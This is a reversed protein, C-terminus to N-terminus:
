KLVSLKIDIYEFGELKQLTYTFDVGETYGELEIKLWEKPTKFSFPEVIVIPTDSFHIRYKFEEGKYSIKSLSMILSPTERCEPVSECNESFSNPNIIM